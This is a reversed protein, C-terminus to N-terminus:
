AFELIVSTGTLNVCIGDEIESLYRKDPNPLYASPPSSFVGFCSSSKEQVVDVLKHVDGGFGMIPNWDVIFIDFGSFKKKEFIEGFGKVGGKFIEGCFAATDCFENVDFLSPYLNLPYNFLGLLTSGYTKQSVFALVYPTAMQLKGNEVRKLFEDQSVDEFGSIKVKLFDVPKLGNIEGIATGDKVVKVEETEPFYNKIIEFTEEYSNGREPFIDHFIANVKGKFCMAAIGRGIDKYNALILPTHSAAELPMLYMGIIPTKRGTKQAMIRLTKNIPFVFKSELYRSYDELVKKKEGFSKENSFRRYCRRDNFFYRLFGFKSPFYFAPFM